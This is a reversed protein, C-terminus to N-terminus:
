LTHVAAYWTYRTGNPRVSYKASPKRFCGAQVQLYRRISSTSTTRHVRPTGLALYEWGRITHGHGDM